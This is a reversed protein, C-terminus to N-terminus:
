NGAVLSRKKANLITMGIIKGSSYRIIIDDERLESDDAHSPKEFDIYLVDTEEDYNTWMNKHELLTPAINIWNKIEINEM